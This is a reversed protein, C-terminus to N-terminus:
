HVGSNFFIGKIVNIRSDSFLTINSISYNYMIQLKHNKSTYKNKRTKIFTM